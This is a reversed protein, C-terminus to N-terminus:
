SFHFVSDLGMAIFKSKINAKVNVFKVEVGEKLLDKLIDILNAIGTNNIFNVNKFDFYQVGQIYMGSLATTVYHGRLQFIEEPKVIENKKQNEPTKADTKATNIIDDLVKNNQPTEMSVHILPIVDPQVETPELTTNIITEM